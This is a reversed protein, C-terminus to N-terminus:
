APGSVFSAAPMKWLGGRYKEKIKLFPREVLYHSAIALAFTAAVAMWPSRVLQKEFVMQQWLYLSYSIRGLFQLMGSTLWTFQVATVVKLLLWVSLLMQVTIYPSPWVNRVGMSWLLLLLWIMWTHTGTILKPLKRPQALYIALCCGILISDMRFYPRAYCITPDYDFLHLHLAIGRCVSMVVVVGLSLPLLGAGLFRVVPPWIAYFQEELSLSWLHGVAVSAGYFNRLYFICFLFERLGIKEIYGNWALFGVVALFFALAPALRLVRRFYFQGLAITGSKRKEALILTTILYGSLVFFVVVGLNALESFRWMMPFPAWVNVFHGILVLLIAIGRLGDLQLIHRAPVITTVSM